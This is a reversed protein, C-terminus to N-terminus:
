DSDESSYQGDEEPGRVLLFFFKGELQSALANRIFEQEKESIDHDTDQMMVNLTFGHNGSGLSYVFDLIGNTTFRTDANLDLTKLRALKAIDPWIGDTIHFGWTEFTELNPLNQALTRIHHETFSASVQTLRLNTLQVLKSLSEVLADNDRVSESEEGGMSLSKLQKQLSLASHFKSSESLQVHDLELSTLKTDHTRLFPTLLAPGSIFNVLSVTILAKCQCLWEVMEEFVDNQRHELDQTGRHNESIKLKEINTCDKFKSLHQMENPGIAVVKLTKLTDSHLNLAPFSSAGIATTGFVQFSQLTQPRIGSLFSACEIDANAGSRCPM